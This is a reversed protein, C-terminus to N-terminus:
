TFMTVRQKGYLSLVYLGQLLSPLIVYADMASCLFVIYFDNAVILWVNNLCLEFMVLRYNLVFELPLEVSMLCNKVCWLFVICCDNFTTWLDNLLLKLIMECGNLCLQFGIWDDSFCLRFCAVIMQFLYSISECDKMCREIFMWVNDFAWEVFFVFRVCFILLFRYLFLFVVSVFVLIFRCCFIFM